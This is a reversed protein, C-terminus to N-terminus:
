IVDGIDHVAPPKPAAIRYVTHEGKIKKSVIVIGRKKLTGFLGRVSNSGWGMAEQLEKNTAGGPSKLMDIFRATKSDGSAGSREAAAKRRAHASKTGASKNPHKVKAKTIM